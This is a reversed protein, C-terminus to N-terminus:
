LHYHLLQCPIPGNYLSLREAPRRAFQREFEENGSIIWADFGRYRRFGASLRRFFDQMPRGTQGLREGYPPNTVILGPPQPLSLNVGDECSFVIDREVGAARANTRAAEIAEPDRDV